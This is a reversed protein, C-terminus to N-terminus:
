LLGALNIVLGVVAFIILAIAMITWAIDRELAWVIAGSVGMVLLGALLVWSLSSALVSGILGVIVILLGILYFLVCLNQLTSRSEDLRAKFRPWEIFATFLFALLAVIASITEWGM